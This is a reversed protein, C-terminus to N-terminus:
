TTTNGMLVVIYHLCPTPSPRPGARREGREKGNPLLPRRTSTSERIQGDTEKERELAFQDTKKNGTRGDSMFLRTTYDTTTGSSAISSRLLCWAWVGASYMSCVMLLEGHLLALRASSGRKMKTEITSLNSHLQFVRM